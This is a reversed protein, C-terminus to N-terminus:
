SAPVLVSVTVNLPTVITLGSLSGKFLLNVKLNLAVTNFLVSLEQNFGILTLLTATSQSSFSPAGAISLMSKFITSGLRTTVFVIVGLGAM